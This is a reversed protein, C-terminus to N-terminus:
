QKIETNNCISGHKMNMEYENHPLTPIDNGKKGQKKGGRVRNWQGIGRIPITKYSTKQGKREKKREKKLSLYM